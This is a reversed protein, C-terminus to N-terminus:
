LWSLLMSFNDKRGAESNEPDEDDDDDDDSASDIHADEGSDKPCVSCMYLYKECRNEAFLDEFSTVHLASVEIDQGDDDSTEQKLTNLARVCVFVLKFM